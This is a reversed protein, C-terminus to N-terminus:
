KQVEKHLKEREQRMKTNENILNRNDSRLKSNEEMLLQLAKELKGVREKKRDRATQAAVRNKMKRRNLKEEMSLHTLRERKRPPAPHSNSSTSILDVVDDITLPEPAPRKLAMPPVSPVQKTCRFNQQPRNSTPLISATQRSIMNGGITSRPSLLPAKRIINPQTVMPRQITIPSKVVPRNNSPIIYITRSAM